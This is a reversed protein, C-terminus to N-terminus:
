TAKRYVSSPPVHQSTYITTLTTDAHTNEMLQSCEINHAYAHIIAHQDLQM